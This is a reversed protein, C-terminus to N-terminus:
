AVKREESSHVLSTVVQAAKMPNAEVLGIVKERLMNGEIKEPNFGTDMNPLADELGPLKQNQQIAELEQLTKPLFDDISEVTNDTIWQIFPKVVMFFFLIILLGAALYKAANKMLEKREQEKMVADMASLDDQVFEMNKIVVKDGREASIGLSSSVIDRFNQVEQESWSTYKTKAQGNEDLVGVGKEDLVPVRKGDIMVAININKVEAVPRKSQTVKSPVNYNRTTLSKNTDSKTEPVAPQAQEAPLNSRAGPVGQPSPRTGQFVQSDIVEAHVASNEGDYTTQTEFKETYDLNVSVKAMVKGNGVVKSLIEEVQSEYQRNMRSELAMRNATEETMNDSINESLKKGRTDIVVVHENRMGDVASSVLSCIGKIEDQNITYGSEIDLVVSASPPKKESVFPSSEPLSLHVRARKIGKIHMMTKVLEGELARQKNIKQVFNTTGFSQKDFVEYGVASTFNVGRKAVELRLMEVKEEPIKIVKGQDETQYPIKADELIQSITASDEPTLNSYLVNYNTKSAWLIMAAIIGLVAVFTIVVSFRKAPTLEKFFSKLNKIIDQLLRELFV